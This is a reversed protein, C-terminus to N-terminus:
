NQRLKKLLDSSLGELRMDRLAQKITEPTYLESQPPLIKQAVNADVTSV